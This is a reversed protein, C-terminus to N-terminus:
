PAAGKYGTHAHPNNVFARFLFYFTGLLVIGEWGKLDIVPHTSVLALALGLASLLWCAGIVWRCVFFARWSVIYIKPLWTTRMRLRTESLQAKWFRFCLFISLIKSAALFLVPLPYPVYNWVVFYVGMFLATVLTLAVRADELHYTIHLAMRALIICYTLLFFVILVAITILEFFSVPSSLLIRVAWSESLSIAILSIVSLTLLAILWLRARFLHARRRKYEVSLERAGGEIGDEKLNSM